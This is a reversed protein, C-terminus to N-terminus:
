EFGRRLRVPSVPLGEMVDERSPQRVVGRRDTRVTGTQFIMPSQPTATSNLNTGKTSALAGPPAPSPERPSSRVSTPDDDTMGATSQSRNSHSRNASGISRSSVSRLREMQLPIEGVLLRRSSRRDMNRTARDGGRDGNREGAQKFVAGLTVM